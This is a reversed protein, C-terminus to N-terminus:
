NVRNPSRAYFALVNTAYKFVESLRSIIMHMGSYIVSISMSYRSAKGTQRALRAHFVGSLGTQSGVSYLMHQRIDSEPRAFAICQSSSMNTTSAAHKSHKLEMALHSNIM